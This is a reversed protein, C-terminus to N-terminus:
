SHHCHLGRRPWVWGCGCGAVQLTRHTVLAGLQAMHTSTDPVLMLNVGAAVAASTEGDLLGRHQWTHPWWLIVLLSHGHGICPGACWSVQLGGLTLILPM